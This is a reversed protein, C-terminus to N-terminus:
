QRLSRSSFQPIAVICTISGHGVVTGKEPGTTKKAQGKALGMVNEKIDIVKIPKPITNECNNLSIENDSNSM